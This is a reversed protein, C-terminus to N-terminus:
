LSDSVITENFSMQLYKSKSYAVDDVGSAWNKWIAGTIKTFMKAQVKIAMAWAKNVFSSSAANM